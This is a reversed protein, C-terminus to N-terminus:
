PRRRAQRVSLVAMLVPVVGWFQLYSYRRLEPWVDVGALEADLVGRRSLSLGHLALAIYNIGIGVVWVGLLRWGVGTSRLAVLLGILVGGAAGALFEAVILRRRLPTGASGYMDIAALRRVDLLAVAGLM